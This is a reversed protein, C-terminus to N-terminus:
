GLTNSPHKLLYPVAARVIETDLLGLGSADCKPINSKCNYIKRRRTM